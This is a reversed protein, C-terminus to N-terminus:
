PPQSYGSPCVTDQLCAKSFSDIPACAQGDPCDGDTDCPNGACVDPTVATGDACALEWSVCSTACPDRRGFGEGSAECAEGPGLRCGVCFLAIWRHM